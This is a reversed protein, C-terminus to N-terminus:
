MQTQNRAMNQLREWQDDKPALLIVDIPQVFGAVDLVFNKSLADSAVIEREGHIWAGEYAKLFGARWMYADIEEMSPEPRAAEVRYWPQARSSEVFTKTRTSCGAKSFGTTM